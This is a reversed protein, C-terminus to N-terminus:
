PKVAILDPSCIFDGGDCLGAQFTSVDVPFSIQLIDGGTQTDLVHVQRDAAAVYLRSGDPTLTAQTPVADGTLPLASSTQNGINFVLVSGRDKALVYARSEDQAVIMQIPVFSGQGLNFSTATGSSATSACGAPARAVRFLDVGPPDLALISTITTASGATPPDALNPADGALAKMFVPTAPLAVNNTFASGLGCTSWATVSSSASGGAVFAFAGEPAFSVDTAPATLAIMKLSDQASWVYLNSGAAIFAKLNDPSFDAATAGAIPLTAGTNTTTDFVIVQTAPPPTMSGPVPVTNPDAGSLIVKKGDPSVTLVRGTVSKFQTVTPPTAVTVQMLGRSGFFAYDTGMYAKAGQRDFVLSNPTAPLAVGSGLTNNPSAIPFLLSTCGSTTACNGPPSTSVGTSAVYVTATTTTTTTSTTPAVLVNVASEPYIPLLPKLGINCTPPTCSAMVAAGGAQSTTMGGTSTVAVTGPNSSSWTLPLGTITNNQIDTVTAIVTKATGSTVNVTNTASGTVELAISRVACTNFDLPQSTVNSTNALLSTIGPTHATVKVQGRTLGTVPAADTAIDISAVDTNVTQWNFTGVSATIDLGRSFATAQYNFTQGKSFCPGAPPNQDPIASVVINDIHQHVYVTTPPSSIGHSTATVQAVGVSGPTCIQPLTLSDWTGACVLGSNAVTLVANNSSLFTVPTTITAHKNNQPTATFSQTASGVDISVVNAPSLLINAPVPFVTNTTPSSSSCGTLAAIFSVTILLLASRVMFIFSSSRGM